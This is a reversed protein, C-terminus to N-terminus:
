FKVSIGLQVRRPPSFWHPQNDWEQMTFQGGQKLMERQIQEDYPLRARQTARGTNSYVSNENLHDFVNDVKLFINLNLGAYEFSKQAKFDLNYRNPKRDSNKFERDPLQLEEVSTPSYPLGSGYRGLFSISWDGTERINLAFNITHRQDWDLPLIQREPFQIPEDSRRTALQVLQLFDPNSASGKAYQFTYDLSGSFMGVGLKELAITLGKVNGYDRNIYRYYSVADVTSALELGVQDRLDKYFMTIDIGFDGAVQQQLGVEYSITKEPKLDPNGIKTGDLLLSTMAQDIPHSFLLEFSPPQFFHGYSFHFAGADSIPFSLGFRPLIAYNIKTNELNSEDGIKDSLERKNIVVQTNPNYLEFRVGANIIIEGIEVKDQIYTSFDMPTRIYDVYDGDQRNSLRLKSSKYISNWNKWYENMLEWFENFELGKANISNTYETSKWRDTRVLPQNHYHIDNMKGEFGFKIFNYKDVQWNFDGNVLFQKRITEGRGWNNDGQVFGTQDDTAGIPLYGKDGPYDAITLNEYLYHKSLNYQYSFRINYFMNDSPNHRFSLFHSMSTGYGKNRGDPAYRWSNSYSQGESSSGFIQYVFAISPVPYYALKGTFSYKEQPAMPVAAGDGTKLSDPIPIRGFGSGQSSYKQTFWHRYANIKWGDIPNYRREGFLYGNDKYYRGTAFFGLKESIIPGSLTLQVDKENLPDFQDIGIFRDTNSSVYDGTFIQVQASYSDTPKKTVINIIGSQAAGYEANFTGSIVQLESIMSNEVRVNSGGSQSFQNSVPVGDIIYSVERERGGRFHLDGGSGAVVGAQIQIIESLSQVPLQNIQEEDIYSATSTRDFEVIPREATVVVDDVTIVGVNLKADINTTLDVRVKVNNIQRTKYGIASFRVKYVGPPINIIQYYGDVDTAAGRNTGLVLVNVGILAEGSEADIVRGVIKGTSGSYLLNSTVM